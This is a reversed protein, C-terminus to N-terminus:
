QEGDREIARGFFIARKRPGDKKAPTVISSSCVKSYLLVPILNM